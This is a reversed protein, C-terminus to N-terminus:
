MRRFVADVRGRVASFGGARLNRLVKKCVGVFGDDIMLQAAVAIITFVRKSIGRPVPRPAFEGIINDRGEFPLRERILPTVYELAGARAQTVEIFHDLQAFFRPFREMYTDFAHAVDRRARAVEDRDTGWALGCNAVEDKAIIERFHENPLLIAPCGCMAAEMSLASNEYCYFAASQWFMEALQQPTQSAPRDRTIETADETIPLTQKGHFYRYKGAYYCAGHREREVAPPHFINFDSGPMCLVNDRYREPLTALVERAYGFVLEDEPFSAPGGLLGPFNGLFRVVCRAHFPNGHLTESYVVIPTRGADFHARLADETLLRTLVYPGTKPTVLYAYYGKLNLVHALQHMVKVGASTRVWPPVVIYYPNSDLTPFVDGPTLEHAHSTPM